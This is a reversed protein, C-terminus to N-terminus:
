WTETGKENTYGTEEVWQQVSITEFEIPEDKGWSPTWRQVMNQDMDYKSLTAKYYTKIRYCDTNIKEYLDKKDDDLEAYQTANIDKHGLLYLTCANHSKLEIPASMMYAIICPQDGNFSTPTKTKDTLDFGTAGFKLNLSHGTATPILTQSKVDMIADLTFNVDKNFFVMSEYVALEPLKMFFRSVSGLRKFVFHAGGTPTAVATSALYDYANLHASAAPESDRYATMKEESDDRQYYASVDINAMQTQGRYTVPINDYHSESSGIDYPSYAVYTAGAELTAFGNDSKVFVASSFSGGNSLGKENDVIWKQSSSMSAEINKGGQTVPFVGIADDMEWSAIMIKGAFDYVLTSRTIPEDDGESEVNPRSAVMGIYDPFPNPITPEEIDLVPTGDSSCAAILMAASIYLLFKKMRMNM